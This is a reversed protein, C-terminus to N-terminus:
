GQKQSQLAEGRYAVGFWLKLLNVVVGLFVCHMVDVTVGVPVKFPKHAMLISAGKIGLVQM